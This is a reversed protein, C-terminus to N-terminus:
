HHRSHPLLNQLRQARIGVGALLLLGFGALAVSSPEPSADVSGTIALTGSNPSGPITAYNGNDIYSDFDFTRLDLGTPVIGVFRIVGTVASYNVQGCSEGAPVNCDDFSFTTLLVPTELPM